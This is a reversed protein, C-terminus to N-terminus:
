TAGIKARKTRAAMAVMMPMAASLYGDDTFHHETTWLTDFAAQDLYEIQQFM